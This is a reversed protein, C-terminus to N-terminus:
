RLSRRRLSDYEVRLVRLDDGLLAVYLADDQACARLSALPRESRYLLAKVYGREPLFHLLCVRYPPRERSSLEDFLFGTGGPLAVLAVSSTGRSLTVPRAEFGSAPAASQYLLLRSSHPDYALVQLRGQSDVASDQAQGFRAVELTKVEQDQLLFLLLRHTATDFVTFGRLGSSLFRSAPAASSFPARVLGAQPGQRWLRGDEELFVELGGPGSFAAVPKGSGPLVDIWSIGTELERRVHKLLLGEERDLYLLHLNGSEAFLLHAGSLPDQEPLDTIRDLYAPPVSGDVPALVLARSEPEVYSLYPTKPTAVLFSGPGASAPTQLVPAPALEQLGSHNCGALAALLVAPLLCISRTMRQISAGWPAGTYENMALHSPM